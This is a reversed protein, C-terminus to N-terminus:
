IKDVFQVFAVCFAFQEIKFREYFLQRLGMFKAAGLLWDVAWALQILQRLKQRLTESLEKLLHSFWVEASEVILWIEESNSNEPVEVPIPIKPVVREFQSPCLLRKLNSLICWTHLVDAVLCAPPRASPSRRLCSRLMWTLVGPAASPLEPLASEVYNESLLEGSLFPNPLNFLQYVITAIAWLDACYYLSPHTCQLDSNQSRSFHVAVEPAWLATNGSHSINACDRGAAHDVTRIACGFDTLAVQVRTNIAEVMQRNLFCVGKPLRRSKVLFNSPRIDRHAIRYRQLRVVAEVMQVTMGVAEEIPILFPSLEVNSRQSTTPNDSPSGTPTEYPSSVTSSFDTTPEWKAELFDELSAEFRAESGGEGVTRVPPTRDFFDALIPVINPHLGPPRLNVERDRQKHLLYLDDSDDEYYNYFVKAAVEKKGDKEHAPYKAAWVAGSSGHSLFKEPEIREFRFRKVYDRRLRDYSRLPSYVSKEIDSDDCVISLELPKLLVPSPSLLELEQAPCDEMWTSQPASDTIDEEEEWQEDSTHGATPSLSFDPPLPPIVLPKSIMGPDVIQTRIYDRENKSAKGSRRVLVQLVTLSTHANILSFLFVPLSIYLRELLRVVFFPCGRLPHPRRHKHVLQALTVFFPEDPPCVHQRSLIEWFTMAVSFVDSKVSYNIQTTSDVAFLEPAMFGATGRRTPSMPEPLQSSEASGFDCLKLRAGENFILCNAPKVDRHIIPISSREHLFALAESLQSMWSLANALNYEISRRRHIVNQYDPGAALLKVVNPHNQLKLLLELEKYRRKLPSSYQFWKVFGLLDDVSTFRM